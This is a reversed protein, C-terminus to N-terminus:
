CSLYKEIEFVFIRRQLRRHSRGHVAVMRWGDTQYNILGGGNRNRQFCIFPMLTQTHAARVDLTLRMHPYIIGVLTGSERRTRGSLLQLNIYINPHRQGAFSEQM